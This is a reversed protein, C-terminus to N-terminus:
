GASGDAGAPPLQMLQEHLASWASSSGAEDFQDSVRVFEDEFELALEDLSPLTGLQALWELRQEPPAALREVTETLALPTLGQLRRSTL